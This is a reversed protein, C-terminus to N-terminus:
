AEKTLIAENMSHIIFYFSKCVDAIEAKATALFVDEAFPNNADKRVRTFSGIKLEVRQVLYSAKDKLEPNQVILSEILNKLESLMRPATLEFFNTEGAYYSKQFAANLETLKQKVTM